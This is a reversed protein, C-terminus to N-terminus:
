SVDWGPPDTIREALFDIFARVKPSLFRRHPYVAYISLELTRYDTLVAQLRGNRLDEGVIFTPILTLGAERLLAERLALSNNMQLSSGVQVRTVEGQGSVFHWENPTPQYRFTIADHCRLDQPKRPTGHREFYAPTACVVHRCPALRRAILSSEPLEAIRIALDFGEEVLNVQRDNLNMEVSLDPYRAMFAPLLPAIHLIGFSM